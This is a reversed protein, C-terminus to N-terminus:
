IRAKRIKRYRFGCKRSCCIDGEYNRAEMRARYEAPMLSFEKKCVPCILYLRSIVTNISM